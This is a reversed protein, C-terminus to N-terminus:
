HSDDRERNGFVLYSTYIGKETDHLMVLKVWCLCGINKWPIQHKEKAANCGAMHDAGCHCQFIRDWGKFQKKPYQNGHGNCFNSNSWVVALKSQMDCQGHGPIYLHLEAMLKM